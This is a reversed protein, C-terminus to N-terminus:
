EGNALLKSVIEEPSKPEQNLVVLTKVGGLDLEEAPCATACGCIILLSASKGPDFGTWEIASGATKKIKEFAEVRDYGPNCGGCYKIAVPRPM